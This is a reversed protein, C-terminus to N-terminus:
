KIVPEERLADSETNRHEWRARGIFRPFAFAAAGSGPEPYFWLEVSEGTETRLTLTNSVPDKRHADWGSISQYSYWRLEGDVAFVAIGRETVVFSRQQENAVLENVGLVEGWSSAVFDDKWWSPRRGDEFSCYGPFIPRGNSGFAVARLLRRAHKKVNTM